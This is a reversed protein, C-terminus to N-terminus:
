SLWKHNCNDYQKMHFVGDNNAGEYDLGKKDGTLFLQRVEPNNKPSASILAMNYGVSFDYVVYDKFFPIETPSYFTKTDSMGLAKYSNNGWGYLEGKDTLAMGFYYYIQARVFTINEPNYDM